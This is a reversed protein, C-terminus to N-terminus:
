WIPFGHFITNERSSQTTAGKIHNQCLLLAKQSIVHIGTSSNSPVGEMPNRSLIFGPELLINIMNSIKILFTLLIPIASAYSILKMESTAFFM